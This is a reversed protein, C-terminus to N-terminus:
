PLSLTSLLFKGLNRMEKGDCTDLFFPSRGPVALRMAPYAWACQLTRGLANRRARPMDQEHLQM